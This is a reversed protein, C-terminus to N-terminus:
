ARAAQAVQSVDDQWITSRRLTTAAHELNKENFSLWTVPVRGDHSPLRVAREHTATVAERALRIPSRPKTNHLVSISHAAERQQLYRFKFPLWSDPVMGDVSPLMVTSLHSKDCNDSHESATAPM